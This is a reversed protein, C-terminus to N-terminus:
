ESEPPQEIRTSFRILDAVNEPVTELRIEMEERDYAVLGSDALLPLHHHYLRIELQRREDPGVVVGESAVWGTLIDILEEFTADERELLYGLVRRRTRNALARFLADPSSVADLAGEDWRPEGADGETLETEDPM